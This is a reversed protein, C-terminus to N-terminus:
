RCHFAMRHTHHNICMPDILRAFRAALKAQAPFRAVGTQSKLNTATEAHKCCRLPQTRKHYIDRLVDTDSSCSSGSSQGSCVHWSVYSSHTIINRTLLQLKTQLAENTIGGHRETADVTNVERALTALVASYYWQESVVQIHDHWWMRSPPLNSISHTLFKWKDVSNYEIEPPACRSTLTCYQVKFGWYRVMQLSLHRSGFNRKKM